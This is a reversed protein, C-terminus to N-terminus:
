RVSEDAPFSKTATSFKARPLDFALVGNTNELAFDVPWLQWDVFGKQVQALHEIRIIWDGLLSNRILNKIEEHDWLIGSTKHQIALQMSLTEM